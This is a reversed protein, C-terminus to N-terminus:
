GHADGKLVLNAACSMREAKQNSPNCNDPEIENGWIVAGLLAQSFTWICEIIHNGLNVM